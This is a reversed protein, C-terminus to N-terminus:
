HKLYQAIIIGSRLKRTQIIPKFLKPKIIAQLGGSQIYKQFNRYHEGGAIWEILGIMSRISRKTHNDFQFDIVILLGDPKLIRHAESILGSQTAQDKEHIAFSIIAADFFSDTFGTQTADEEYINIPYDGRRAIALMATSLDVCHLNTFGNRALLKLQNGTGGCLDVIRHDHNGNLINLVKLRIPRLPLYLFQDYILSSLSYDNSM